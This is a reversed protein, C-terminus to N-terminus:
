ESFDLVEGTDCFASWSVQVQHSAGSPDDTSIDASITLPESPYVVGVFQGTTCGADFFPNCNGAVFGSPGIVTVNLVSAMIDDAADAKPAAVPGSSSGAAHQAAAKVVKLKAPGTHQGSVNAALAHEHIADAALQRGKLSGAKSRARSVRAASREKALSLDRRVQARRVSLGVGHGPSAAAGVV